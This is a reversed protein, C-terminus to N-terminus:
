LPDQGVEVRLVRLSSDLSHPHTPRPPPIRMNLPPLHSTCFFFWCHYREMVRVCACVCVCVCVSEREREREIASLHV